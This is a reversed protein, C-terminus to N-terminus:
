AQNEDISTILGSAIGMLVLIISKLASFIRFNKIFKIIKTRPEYLESILWKIKEFLSNEQNHLKMVLISSRARHYDKKNQYVSSTGGGYHILYVNNLVEEKFGSNKVRCFFDMEEGYYILKENLLGYRILWDSRILFSESVTFKHGMRIQYKGDGWCVGRDPHIIKPGVVAYDKNSDMYRVLEELLNLSEIKMDNQLVFIYESKKELGKRMGYNYKKSLGFQYPSPYPYIFCRPDQIKILPSIDKSNDDVIILCFDQFTQLCLQNYIKLTRTAADRNPIVISIKNSHNKM